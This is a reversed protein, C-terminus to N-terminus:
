GIAAVAAQVAEIRAEIAAADGSPLYFLCRQVGAARYRDLRRPDAPPGMLTIGIEREARRGLEAIRALLNEDDPTVNPMWQDGFALVRDLVTAGNGGVLIPPHPRQVPKPWCWIQEFRVFEGEYSAADESWIARMADVREGFLRFRTRPDTGHNRMEELNWGAGVGFLFRGGSLRDVCAVEKATIIPDRQVILCIATGVLLRSTACVAATAAVFPDYTRAYEAPLDGGAPHPSERAAPIHTHETFCLSELGRQEAIRALAAPDPMQDTAFIFAGVHVEQSDLTKLLRKTLDQASV